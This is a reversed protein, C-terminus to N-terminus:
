GAGITKALADDLPYPQEHPMLAEARDVDGSDLHVSIEHALTTLDRIEVTWDNVCRPIIERPLGVQVSRHDLKADRM